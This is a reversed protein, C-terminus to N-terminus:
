VYVTTLVHENYFERAVAEIVDYAEVVFLGAKQLDKTPCPGVKAALVARCDAITEIIGTLTAAEGYAAKATTPLKAIVSSSLGHRCRSRLDHIRQCPWLTPESPRRRKTAVAVLVKPSDALTEAAQSNAVKEAAAERRQAIAAEKQKIDM